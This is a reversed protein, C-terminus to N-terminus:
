RKKVYRAYDGASHCVSKHSYGWTELRAYIDYEDTYILTGPTVISQIIPKITQQQVNALMQIVGGWGMSDDRLDATKGNRAYRAGSAGQTKAQMGQSRKKVQEPQGKHGATVYVEDFEVTGSLQVEPCKDAIAQRLEGTMQHVDDKHLDLEESIQQNSVNLGMLYLCAIWTQLPQHRGAFITDTLDDFHRDCEGCIYRQRASYTKHKGRLSGDRM